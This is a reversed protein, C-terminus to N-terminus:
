ILRDNPVNLLEASIKPIHVYPKNKVLILVFFHGADDASWKKKRQYATKLKMDRTGTNFGNMVRRKKAKLKKLNKEVM